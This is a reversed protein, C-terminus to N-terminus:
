TYYRRPSCTTLDGEQRDCCGSSEPLTSRIYVKPSINTGPRTMFMTPGATGAQTLQYAQFELADELPLGEETLVVKGFMVADLSATRWLRGGYSIKQNM